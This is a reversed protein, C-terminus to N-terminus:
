GLAYDSVKRMSPSHFGIVIDQRLVGLAVLEEAFDVETGNYQIWIKCDKIDLHVICGYVRRRGDWGVNVLQYHHRVTDFNLQREIEGQYSGSCAYDTIVKEVWAQYQSVRDM